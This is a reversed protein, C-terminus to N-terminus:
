QYSSVCHDVCHVFDFLEQMCTETTNTKSSVRENCTELEEAFKACKPLEACKAKLVDQPDEVDQLLCLRTKYARCM